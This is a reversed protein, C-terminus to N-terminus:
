NKLINCFCRKRKKFNIFAAKQKKENETEGQPRGMTNNGNYRGTKPDLDEASRPRAPERCLVVPLCLPLVVAPFHHLVKIFKLSFPAKSFCM